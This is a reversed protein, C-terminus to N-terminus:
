ARGTLERIFRKFNNIDVAWMLKQRQKICDSVAVSQSPTLDYNAALYRVIDIDSQYAKKLNASKQTSSVRHLSLLEPSYRHKAGSAMARLWFDYDEGFVSTRYGGIKSHWERRFSAGVSYFCTRIVDETPLSEKRATAAPYVPRKVGTEPYWFYGNSSYIDFSPDWDILESLKELCNELLIDDASCLTIFEGRAATCGTNYAGGSGQNEQSMVQVRSDRASYARAISETEDTSGDNVVICEWNGYTQALIADLTEAITESANYAPVVMASRTHGCRSAIARYGYGQDVLDVIRLRDQDTLQSKHPM